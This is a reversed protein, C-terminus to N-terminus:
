ENEKKFYQKILENIKSEPKWYGPGKMVKGREDYIPNGNADLKSFNSQMIINLVKNIDLGYKVSESSIYVIMDGLWDAINTLIERKKESTLNKENESYSKIIEDVENVEEQLISKFNNLREIGLLSPTENIPLKYISNFKKISEQFDKFNTEDKM